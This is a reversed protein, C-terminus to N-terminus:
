VGKGFFGNNALVISCTNCKIGKRNEPTDKINSYSNKPVNNNKLGCLTQLKGPKRVHVRGTRKNVILIAM